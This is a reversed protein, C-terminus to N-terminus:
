GLMLNTILRRMANAENSYCDKQPNYRCYGISDDVRFTGYYALKANHEKVYDDLTSEDNLNFSLGKERLVIEPFSDGCLSIGRHDTVGVGRNGWWRIKGFSSLAGVAYQTRPIGRHYSRVLYATYCAMCVDSYSHKGNIARVNLVPTFLSHKGMISCRFCTTNTPIGEIRKEISLPTSRKVYIDGFPVAGWGGCRLKDKIFGSSEQIGLKTMTHVTESATEGIVKRTSLNEILHGKSDYISYTKRGYSFKDWSPGNLSVAIGQIGKGGERATKVIHESSTRLLAAFNALIMPRWTGKRARGYDYVLPAIHIITTKDNM